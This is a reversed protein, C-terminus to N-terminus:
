ISVNLISRGTDDSIEPEGILCLDDGEVRVKYTIKCAKLTRAFDYYFQITATQIDGEVGTELVDYVCYYGGRSLSPRDTYITGDEVYLYGDVSVKEELEVGEELYFCIKLNCGFIKQAKENYGEADLGPYKYALYEFIKRKEPSYRASDSLGYPIVPYGNVMIWNEVFEVAKNSQIHSYHGCAHEMYSTFFNQYVFTHKGKDLGDVGSQLIEVDLRLRGDAIRSITYDGFVLTRYEEHSGWGYGGLDVIADIDKNLFAKVTEVASADIGEMSSLDKIDTVSNVAYFDIGQSPNLETFHGKERDFSTGLSLTYQGDDTELFFYLPQILSTKHQIEALYIKYGPAYGDTAAYGTFIDVPLSHCEIFNEATLELRHVIKGGKLEVAALGERIEDDINYRPMDYKILAYEDYIIHAYASSEGYPSYDILYDGASSTSYSFSRGDKHKLILKNNDYYLQWDPDNTSYEFVSQVEQAEEKETLVMEKETEPTESPQNAGVGFGILGGALLAAILALIVLIYGKKRHKLEVISEFREKVAKKNPNFGTTLVPVGKCRKVIELMSSGYDLREAASRMELATEDCSLEMERSHYVSAMYVIPNFWHIANAILSLLKIILDHRQYHVLEHRLVCELNNEEFEMDPLVVKPRIFGYLMPSRAISSVYLSPIRKISESVCIDIYRNETEADAPKLSRNLMRVNSIYNFITVTIFVIAGLVWASFLASAIHEGTIELGEDSEPENATPVTINPTNSIDPMEGQNPLQEGSPVSISDKVEVKVEDRPLTILDPLINTSLPICLRIIIISWLIYRCGATFGKKIPKQLLIFLIIVVSMALSIGGLTILFDLM